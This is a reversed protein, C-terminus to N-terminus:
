NKVPAATEFSTSTRKDAVAPSCRDDACNAAAAQQAIELRKKDEYAQVLADVSSGRTIATRYRAFIDYLFNSLHKFGPVHTIRFLWGLQVRQYAKEFVPVGNLIQGSPTVAHMSSMGVAYSIGGNRPDSEDYSGSELDTFRLKPGTSSKRTGNLRMDRQRLFDIELKCVNCKSDYIVNLEEPFLREKSTKGQLDEPSRSTSSMVAIFNPRQQQQRSFPSLRGVGWSFSVVGSLQRGGAASAALMLVGALRM